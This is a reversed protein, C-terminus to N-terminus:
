MECEEATAERSGMEARATAMAPVLGDSNPLLREDSILGRLFPSALDGFTTTRSVVKVKTRVMTKAKVRIKLRINTASDFNHYPISEPFDELLSQLHILQEALPM